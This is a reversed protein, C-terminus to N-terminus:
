GSDDIPNRRQDRSARWSPSSSGSLTPSLTPSSPVSLEPRTAEALEADSAGSTVNQKLWQVNPEEGDGSPLQRRSPPTPVCQEWTSTVARAPKGKAELREDLVASPSSEAESAQKVENDHVAAQVSRAQVFLLDQVILEYKASVDEPRQQVPALTLVDKTQAQQQEEVIAGVTPVAAVLDPSDSLRGGRSISSHDEQMHALHSRDAFADIRSLVEEMAAMMRYQTAQLDALIDASM